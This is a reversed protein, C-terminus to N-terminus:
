TAFVGPSSFSHDGLLGDGTQVGRPPPNSGPPNLSTRRILDDGVRKSGLYRLTVALYKSLRGMELCGLRIKVGRRTVTTSRGLPPDKGHILDEM